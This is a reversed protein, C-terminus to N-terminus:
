PGSVPLTVTVPCSQQQKEQCRDRARSVAEEPSQGCAVDCISLKGSTWCAAAIDSFADSSCRSAIESTNAITPEREFGRIMDAFVCSKPDGARSTCVDLGQLAVRPPVAAPCPLRNKVPTDSEASAIRMRAAFLDNNAIDAILYTVTCAVPALSDAIVPPVYLRLDFPQPGASVPGANPLMLMALLWLTRKVM